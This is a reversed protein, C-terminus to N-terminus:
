TNASKEISQLAPLISSQDLYVSLSTVKGNGVGWIHVLPTDFTAGTTKVTGVTRGVIAIHEGADLVKEVTVKSQIFSTVKGFFSLAQAVGRYRGGWPLQESQYVEISQDILAPLAQADRRAFADYVRMILEVNSSSM